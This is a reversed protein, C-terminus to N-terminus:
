CCDQSVTFAQRGLSLKILLYGFDVDLLAGNFIKTALISLGIPERLWMM